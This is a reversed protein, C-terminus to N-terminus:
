PTRAEVLGGRGATRPDGQSCPRPPPPARLRPLSLVGALSAASGFRRAKFPRTLRLTGDHLLRRPAHSRGARRSPPHTPLTDTTPLLRRGYPRFPLPTFRQLLEDASDDDDKGAGCFTGQASSIRSSAAVHVLMGKVVNCNYSKWSHGRRLDYVSRCAKM